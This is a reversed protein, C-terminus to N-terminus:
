AGIENKNINSSESNATEGTRGDEESGTGPIEFDMSPM